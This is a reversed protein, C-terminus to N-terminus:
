YKQSSEFDEANYYHVNTLELKSLARETKLCIQDQYPTQKLLEILDAKNVEKQGNRIQKFLRACNSLTKGIAVDCDDKMVSTRNRIIYSILQEDDNFEKIVLNDLNVQYEYVFGAKFNLISLADYYNETLYFGNGFDRYNKSMNLLPRKFERLSGHYVTMMM